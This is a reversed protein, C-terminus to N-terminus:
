GITARFQVAELQCNSKLPGDLRYVRPSKSFEFVRFLQYKQENSESCRVENATVYFPFFKGLGTTKVEVFRESADTENFSM